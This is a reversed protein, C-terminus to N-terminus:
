AGESVEYASDGGAQIAALIEAPSVASSDYTVTVQKGEWAVDIIGPAKKISGEVRRQCGPCNVTEVYFAAMAQTAATGGTSGALGQAVFVTVQTRDGDARLSAIGVYGSDNQEPLGITLAEGVVPGGIAGCAVPTGAGVDATGEHVDIAYAEARLDALTVDLTTASMGASASAAADAGGGEVTPLTVPSLSFRPAPGLNACSGPHISLEYTSGAVVDAAPTVNQALARTGGVVAVGLLTAAMGLTLQMRKARIVDEV